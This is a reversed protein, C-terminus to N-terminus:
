ARRNRVSQAVAVATLAAWIVWLPWPLPRIAQVAGLVVLALGSSVLGPEQRWWKM